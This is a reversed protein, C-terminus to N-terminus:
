SVGQNAGFGWLFLGLEIGCLIPITLNDDLNWLDIAESVSAALGSIVSLVVLASAGSVTAQRESLGLANRAQSPVTLTGEFAFSNVGNNLTGGRGSPAIFGWFLVATAVGVIFAALSGALSKGRRIRPTYKGWLRGFTSAATDCWSLLLVSMIGVDKRCFRMTVWLGALYSIVGNFRDHAESERMFAGVTKIYVRNFALWRFRLLDLSFIPILLSLLLPHIQSPQYGFYYLGLALFGISVHLLKRPVEHKHVFARWERHIPILGLPSPSRSLSRWYASGYGQPLAANPSLLSDATPLPAAGNPPKISDIDKKRRTAHSVAASPMGAKASTAISGNLQTQKSTPVRELQPSRERARARALEPDDAGEEIPEVSGLRATKSRTQYTFYGDKSSTDSPTPSPSIVRPTSPIQYQSTM